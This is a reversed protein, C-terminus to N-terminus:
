ASVCRLSVIEYPGIDIEVSGGVVALPEENEELLNCRHVANMTLGFSVRVPGRCREGEYLRVIFGVGDEAPKITEIVVNRRDTSVLQRLAAEGGANDVPVLIAPGNLEYGEAPAGNRWDGTHPLLSYVMRHEGQDATPDPMTACKLLSLRLVNDRVDYGYKCDNLLAVGYDGESLDAWNQAAVEFRAFDWSTNRHTPREITGWQIDYTATPSFVSVPFAVKLLIHSEHWDVFTHFDLRKSDHCLSIRQIIRSSRYRREVEVTARLPGTEVIKRGVLGTIEEGREEFFADIDWADWNLPRDEFAWLQNGAQGDSLVERRAEKDFIRGLRGHDDIEVRLLDNQLVVTDGAQELLVPAGISVPEGALGLATISFAPLSSLAVLAGGDVAQTALAQGTNLDVLGAETRGPLFGTRPGDFSSANVAMVATGPSLTSALAAMAGDRAETAQRTISAYDAEADVFVEPISTGPLVDHFQNLCLLRWAEALAAPTAGYGAVTRAFVSLFEAEHLLRECRRNDRKTRAQSTLVGRHGEMYLEGNWVPLGDVDGREIGEFFERVTGMRVRPAGPMRNLIEANEILARNPGGGGDGYGYAMLLERHTEKQRFERWSGFVEAASMEAKYTAPYPLHEVERPTTLFHALVRSGDIGQWWTIQAPMPNYQNWSLKNTVFWKLGAQVMLQPLCWSFGFTDPLWLVPTEVDGFRERFYRRGLLLQRVLAEAGAINTDPEVWMGGMVEWRGEAVRAKIQEFLEPYDEETFRYLQPQSQSFRYESFEDMLRLANAFTRGNKRRTQAVPWLYAVDIHAHGVAVVDVDTPAGAEVLERELLGLAEPVTEYFSESRIPDRTDLVHFARNLANLIGQKEPREDTLQAAVDLAMQALGTFRCTSADLEVLSCERMFLKTKKNPEPPWSSLGTWGHLTITHSDGGCVNEPLRIEHHYRDASAYAQGDLYILAEPHSFIDGAVGLPLHLAALGASWDAPVRFASRMVFDTAWDGWYSDSAIIHWDADDHDRDVPPRIGPGDLSRYRFPPIPERRRHALPRILALRAAIKEATWFRQHKM